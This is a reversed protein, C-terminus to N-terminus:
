GRRLEDYTQFIKRLKSHLWERPDTRALCKHVISLIVEISEGVFGNLKEEPIPTLLSKIELFIKACETGEICDHCDHNYSCESLWKSLWKSLKENM